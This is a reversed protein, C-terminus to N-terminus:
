RGGSRAHRGIAAALRALMAGLGAGLTNSVLDQAQANRGVLFLAQIGEIGLSGLFGIAMWVLVPVRQWLLACAFAVPVFLAVNYLFSWLQTDAFWDPFGVSRLVSTTTSVAANPLDGEPGLVLVAVGVVAMVLALVMGRRVQPHTM